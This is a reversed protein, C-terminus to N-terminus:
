RRLLPIRELVDAVSDVALSTFTATGLALALEREGPALGHGARVHIGGAIGARRGAEVDSARDGVIWSSALDIPLARAARLLMGPNPKRAPHDPHDHPADAPRHYSCAYVADVFAGAAALESLIVQQVAAFARWDYLGRGVGAQNTVIVVPVDRTNARAIIGMAAPVIRIDEVRNLYHVEEVIIGDRDLFLAGGRRREPREFVQNWVGEADVFAEQPLGSIPPPPTASM